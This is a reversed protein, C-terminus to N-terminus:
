FFQLFYTIAIDWALFRRPVKKNFHNIKTQVDLRLYTPHPHPTLLTAEFEILAFYDIKKPALIVLLWKNRRLFSLYINISSTRWLVNSSSNFQHVIQHVMQHVSQSVSWMIGLAYGASIPQTPKSAASFDLKLLKSTKKQMRSMVHENKKVYM